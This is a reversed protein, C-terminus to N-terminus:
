RLSNKLRRAMGCVELSLERIIQAAIVRAKKPKMSRPSNVQLEFNEKSVCREGLSTRKRGDNPV